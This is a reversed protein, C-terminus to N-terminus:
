FSICDDILALMFLPTSPGEQGSRGYHRTIHTSSGFDFVTDYNNEYRLENVVLTCSFTSNSRFLDPCRSRSSLSVMEARPKAGVGAGPLTQVPYHVLCWPPRGRAATDCAELGCGGGRPPAWAGM